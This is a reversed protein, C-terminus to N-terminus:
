SPGETVRFPSSLVPRRRVLDRRASQVPPQRRDAACTMAISMRSGRARRLCDRIRHTIADRRRRRQPSSRQLAHWDRGRLRRQREVRILSGGPKAISTTARTGFARAIVQPLSPVSNTPECARALHVRHRQRAPCAAVGRTRTSRTPGARARPRRTGRRRATRRPPRAADQAEVVDLPPEVIRRAGTTTLSAERRSPWWPRLNMAKPGSPLSYTGTPAGHLM